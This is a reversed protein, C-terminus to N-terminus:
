VTRGGLEIYQEGPLVEVGEKTSNGCHAGGCVEYYPRNILKKIEERVNEHEHLNIFQGDIPFIRTKDYMEAAPCVFFVGNCIAPGEVCKNKVTILYEPSYNADEKLDGISNWIPTSVNCNLGVNKVKKVNEEFLHKMKENLSGTYNSFDRGYPQVVPEAPPRSLGRWPM